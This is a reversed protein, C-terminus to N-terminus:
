KVASFMDNLDDNDDDCVCLMMVMACASSHWLQAQGSDIEVPKCDGHEIHLM